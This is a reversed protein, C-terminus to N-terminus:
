EDRWPESNELMEEFKRKFYQPYIKVLIKEKLSPKNFVINGYICGMIQSADKLEKFEKESTEWLIKYIRYLTSVPPIPYQTQGFPYLERDVSKGNKDYTVLTITLNNKPKKYIIDKYYMWYIQTGNTAKIKQESVDFKTWVTKRNNDLKEISDADIWANYAVKVWDEALCPQLSVLLLLIYVILKKM